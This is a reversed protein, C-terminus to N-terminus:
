NFILRIVLDVSYMWDWWPFLLLIVAVTSVALTTRGSRHWVGGLRLVLALMAGVAAGCFASVLWKPLFAMAYAVLFNAGRGNVLSDLM